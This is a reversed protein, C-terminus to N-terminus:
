PVAPELWLADPSVGLADAIAKQTEPSGSRRGHEIDSVLQKSLNARRALEAANLGLAYRARIVREPDLRPTRMHVVTRLLARVTLM